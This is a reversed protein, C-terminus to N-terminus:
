SCLFIQMAHGFTPSAEGSLVSTMVWIIHKCPIKKKALSHRIFLPCSCIPKKRIDVMYETGAKGTLM